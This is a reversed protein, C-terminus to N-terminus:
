PEQTRHGPADGGRWRGPLLGCALVPVMYPMGCLVVISKGSSSFAATWRSAGRRPTESGSTGRCARAPATARGRGRNPIMSPSGIASRTSSSSAPNPSRHDDGGGTGQQRQEVASLRPVVVCSADDLARILRQNDRGENHGFEVIEDRGADADIGLHLYEGLERTTGAVERLEVRVVKPRARPDDAAIAILLDAGSIRGEDHDRPPVPRARQQREVM